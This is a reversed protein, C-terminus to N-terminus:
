PRTVLRKDADPLAAYLELFVGNTWGFGIENSVYGFRLKGAVSARANAVDYKEFMAGREALQDRVLSLFEITIREAIAGQGYRRLGEIAFLELPAWGFPADWQTGTQLLSTVLGGPREFLNVQAALRQAHADSALGVWLPLFTTLFPYPRHKKKAFDYDLYMGSKDDWMDREVLVRRRAARERWPASEATRGLEDLFAALDLETQYLLSNLCVPAVDLIGTGLPGFRDTPDFGSERMSRDAVYFEDTLTDHVPDYFRVLSPDRELKGRLAIRVRDYHSRGEADREDSLVEPAPGVGGAYYRSLGGPEILHPATTFYRHTAELAPLVASLWRRDHTRAYVRAIMRGLLPPQSRSLYYSRNANLIKGYHNVEYVLDDVMRRADDVRDERLLGLVIFFSDWGYMENFRGGPVFYPEPLYLLGPEAPEGERPLSRLELQAFDAAPVSRRLRRRIKELDEDAPVYVIPRARPFKPDTAARLLERPGRRLSDWARHIYALPGTEPVRRPAAACASLAFLVLLAASRRM